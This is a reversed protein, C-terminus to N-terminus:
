KILEKLLKVYNDYRFKPIKNENVKKKIECWNEPEEYHLCTKFKCLSLNSKFINFSQALAYKDLGYAKLNISSFGPTDIIEGGVFPLIRIVRTTHKGRNLAKSIENTEFNFSGIKNLLTTKGVGSQGIFVSTKNKFCLKIKELNTQLNDSYFVKYGMDQYKEKWEDKVILDKKSFILIPDINNFELIALYKDILYDSFQPQILSMIIIGQDINAVKPRTLINKRPFIKKITEDQNFDVIDGVVPTINQYRFVGPASINHINGLEDRVHYRGAIISYIKGKM